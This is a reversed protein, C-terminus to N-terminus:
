GYGQKVGVALPFTHTSLSLANNSSSFNWFCLVCFSFCRRVVCSRKFRSLCNLSVPFLHLELAVAVTAASETFVSLLVFEVWEKDDIPWFLKNLWSSIRCCIDSCNSKPTLRISDGSQIIISGFFTSDTWFFSSFNLWFFLLFEPLLSDNISSTSSSLLGTGLTVSFLLLFIVTFVTLLALAWLLSLIEVSSACKLGILAQGKVGGRWSDPPLTISGTSIRVVGLFRLLLKLVESSLLRDSISAELGIM